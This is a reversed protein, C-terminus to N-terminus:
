EHTVGVYTAEKMVKAKLEELEDTDVDTVVSDVTLLQDTSYLKREETVIDSCWWLDGEPEEARVTIFTDAARYLQGKTVQEITEFKDTEKM